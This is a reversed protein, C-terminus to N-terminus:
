NACPTVLEPVGTKEDIKVLGAGKKLEASFAAKEGTGTVTIKATAGSLSAQDVGLKELSTEYKDFEAQYSKEAVYITKAANRLMTTCDPPPIVARTPLKAPTWAGEKKEFYVITKDASETADVVKAFPRDDILPGAAVVLLDSNVMRILEITCRETANFFNVSGSGKSLIVVARDAGSFATKSPKLAQDSLMGNIINPQDAETLGEVTKAFAEIEKKTALQAKRDGQHKLWKPLRQELGTVLKGVDQSELGHPPAALLM